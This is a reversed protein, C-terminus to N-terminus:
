EVPTPSTPTRTGTPAVPDMAPNISQETAPNMDLEMAPANSKTPQEGTNRESGGLGAILMFGFLLILLIAAVWGGWGGRSSGALRDLDNPSAGPPAYPDRRNQEHYSGVHSGGNGLSRRKNLAHLM